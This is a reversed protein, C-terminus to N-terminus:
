DCKIDIFNYVPNYYVICSYQDSNGLIDEIPNTTQIKDKPLNLGKSPKTNLCQDKYFDHYHPILFYALKYCTRTKQIIDDEYRFDFVVQVGKALFEKIIPAQTRTVADQDNSIGPSNKIRIILPYSCALTIILCGATMLKGMEKYSIQFLTKKLYISAIAYFIVVYSTSYRTLDHINIFSEGLSAYIGNAHLIYLYLRWLLFVIFLITATILLKLFGKRDKEQGYEELIFWTATLAAYLYIFSRSILSNYLAKIYIFLIKLSASDNALFSMFINKASTLSHSDRGLIGYKEVYIFWLYYGIIPLLIMMFLAKLREKYPSDLNYFIMISVFWGLWLGIERFIPMFFLIPYILFLAKRKDEELMFIMLISSFIFAISGDNYTSILCNAELAPFLLIASVMLITQWFYKNAMIPGLFLIQMVFHAFLLGADSDGSFFLMFYHFLNPGRPYHLHTRPISTEYGSYIDNYLILEKSMVSWFMLDDWASIYKTQVYILYTIFILAIVILETRFTIISKRLFPFTLLNYSLLTLGALILVYTTQFLVGMACSSFLVGVLSSIAIPLAFTFRTAFLRSILSAFGLISFLPILIM